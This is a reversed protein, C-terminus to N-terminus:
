EGVSFSRESRKLDTYKKMRAQARTLHEKLTRLAAQRDVLCKLPMKIAGRPPAGLPIHPPPYGYLAEFPTTKITTHYNTNYWWEALSVWKVWKKPHEFVMCRLYMEVCQNLRESQRDTQPHYATSFNLKIDLRSMLERRFQSTFIPDGNIVIKQPLGHLKYITDLFLEVVQLAKFPHSLALLHCYKILKDIVVLIIEKGESKPLGCVFDMTIIKWAGNPIPLPELLGLTLVHEGKNLQCIDCQQVQTLVDENLKPRYFMRKIRQYTGIVGSHGGISTDHLTHILKHMWGGAIGVYIRMKKRIVGGHV